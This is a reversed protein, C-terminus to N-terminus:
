ISFYTSAIRAARRNKNGRYMIKLLLKFGKLSTLILSIHIGALFGLKSPNMSANLLSIWFILFLKMNTIGTLKSEMTNPDIIPNTKAFTFNGKAFTRKVNTIKPINM